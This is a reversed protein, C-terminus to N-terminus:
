AKVLSLVWIGYFGIAFGLWRLSTKIHGPKRSGIGFWILGAISAIWGWFGIEILLSWGTAPLTVYGSKKDSPSFKDSDGQYDVITSHSLKNNCKEIWDDYPSYVSRITYLSSRLKRYALQARIHNENKEAQTGIEWLRLISTKVQSNFPLYWRITREYYIMAQDLNRSAFAQEAHQFTKLGHIYVKGVVMLLLIVAVGGIFILKRFLLM